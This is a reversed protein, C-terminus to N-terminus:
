STVSDDSNITQGQTACSLIVEIDMSYQCSQQTVFIGNSIVLGYTNGDDWANSPSYYHPCSFNRGCEDNAGIIDCIAGSKSNANCFRGGDIGSGCRAINILEDSKNGYIYTVLIDEGVPPEGYDMMATKVTITPHFCTFNIVDFQIYYKAHNGTIFDPFAVEMAENSTYSCRYIGPERVVVNDNIDCNKGFIGPNNNVMCSISESYMQKDLNTEGELGGIKYLMGNTFSTESTHGDMVFTQQQIGNINIGNNSSTILCSINATWTMRSRLGNLESYTHILQARIGPDNLQSLSLLIYGSLTDEVNSIVFNECSFILKFEM